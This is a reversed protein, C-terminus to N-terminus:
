ARLASSAEHHGYATGVSDYNKPTADLSIVSPVRRMLPASLLTLVQTHFFFADHRAAARDSSLHRWARWSGRATWNSRLVPLREIRDSPAFSLPYWTAAVGPEADVTARLNKYHTVHGLTQEMVFGYRRPGDTRPTM